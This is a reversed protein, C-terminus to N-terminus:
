LLSLVNATRILLFTSKPLFTYIYQKSIQESNKKKACTPFNPKKLNVVKMSTIINKSDKLTYYFYKEKVPIKKKDYSIEKLPIFDSKSIWTRHKSYESNIKQKPTSVIM